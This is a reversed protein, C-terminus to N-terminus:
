PTALGSCCSVRSVFHRNSGVSQSTVVLLHPSAHQPLRGTRLKLSSAPEDGGTRLVWNTPRSFAFCFRNYVWWLISFLTTHVHSVAGTAPAARRATGTIYAKASRELNPLAPRQASTSNATSCTVLIFMQGVLGLQKVVGTSLMGRKAVGLGDVGHGPHDFFM